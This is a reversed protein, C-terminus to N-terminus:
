HIFHCESYTESVSKYDHIDVFTDEPLELGMALLRLSSILGFSLLAM